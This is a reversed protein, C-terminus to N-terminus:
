RSSEDDQSPFEMAVGVPEKGWGRATRNEGPTELVVVPVVLISSVVRGSRGVRVPVRCGNPLFARCAWTRFSKFTAEERSMSVPETGGEM